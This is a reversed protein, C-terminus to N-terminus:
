NKELSESAPAASLRRADERLLVPVGHRHPFALRDAECLWEGQKRDFRLPGRCVPCVLLHRLKKHM